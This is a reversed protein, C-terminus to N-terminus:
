ANGGAAREMHDLFARADAVKALPLEAIDGLEFHALFESEPLGIRDIWARLEDVPVHTLEPAAGARAQPAATAPKGRVETATSDIAMADRIREGEDPDYIGAFGFAVRACQILAKHRLMRQPMDRWPGTDRRCEALYERVEIADTRDRRRIACEIWADAPPTGDPAYRFTISDLEPRSNIIRIWGDVSVMPVIGGGQGAFAFIERTFPNLNYQEAVVLLAIMQENTIEPGPQGGKTPQKFATDKLTKLMKDPEVGYKSAMSALLGRHRSVVLETGADAKRTATRANM